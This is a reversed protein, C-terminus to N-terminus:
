LVMVGKKAIYEPDFDVQKLHSFKERREKKNIFLEHNKLEDYKLRFYIKDKNLHNMFHSYIISPLFVSPLDSKFHKMIVQRANEDFGNFLNGDSIKNNMYKVSHNMSDNIDENKREILIICTPQSFYYNHIDRTFATMQIVMKRPHHIILRFKEVTSEDTDDIYYSEDVFKYKLEKSLILSAITTGARPPGTIIIKTFDLLNEKLNNLYLEKM